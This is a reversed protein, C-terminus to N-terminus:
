EAAQRKPIRGPPAGPEPPRLARRITPLPGARQLAFSFVGGVAVRLDHIPPAPVSFLGYGGIDDGLGYVRDVLNESKKSLSLSRFDVNNENLPRGGPLV